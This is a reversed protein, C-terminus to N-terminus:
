FDVEQDLRNFRELWVEHQLQKIQQQQSYLDNEIRELAKRQDCEATLCFANAAAALSLSAVLTGIIFLSHKM